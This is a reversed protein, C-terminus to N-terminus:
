LEFKTNEHNIRRIEHIAFFNCVDVIFEPFKIEKFQL